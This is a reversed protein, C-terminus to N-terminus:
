GGKRVYIQLEFTTLPGLNKLEVFIDKTGSEDIFPIYMIDWLVNNVTGSRYVYKGGSEPPKTFISLEFDGTHEHGSCKVGRVFGSGMFPMWFTKTEGQTVYAITSEYVYLQLSESDYLENIAEVVVKSATKLESVEGVTRKIKKAEQLAIITDLYGGL